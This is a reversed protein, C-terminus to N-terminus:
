FSPTRLRACAAARLGSSALSCVRYEFYDPRFVAVSSEPEAEEGSVGIRRRSHPPANADRAADFSKRLYTGNSEHWAM